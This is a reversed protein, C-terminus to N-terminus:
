AKGCTPKSVAASFAKEILDVDRPDSLAVLAAHRLARVHTILVARREGDISDGAIDAITNMVHLTANRDTAVYPRLKDFIAAAVDEFTRARSILRLQGEDDYHGDEPIVRKAMRVLGGGPWDVANTATFLDNMGPSRARAAVEVLRNVVYLVDQVQSQDNGVVIAAHVVNLTKEDTSTTPELYALAWGKSVYDGPRRWMEIVLDHKQAHSILKAVDIYQLYGDQRAQITAVQRSAPDLPTAAAAGGKPDSASRLDPYMDEIQDHLDRGLLGVVNSIHITEPVHHIFYILVGLSALTFLLAIVVALHPVFVAQADEGTRVTRLVLICFMFTAIFTGLTIQNGRDQMFNSILRPGFTSATTAIAAITISFTVGAVTIMSGAITSLLSRAGTPENEYLWPLYAIWEVGLRRDITVTVVGLLMAGFTMVSPILWYKARLSSLNLLLLARM